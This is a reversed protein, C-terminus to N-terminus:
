GRKTSCNVANLQRINRDYFQLAVRKDTPTQRVGKPPHQVITKADVLLVVVADRVRLAATCTEQRQKGGSYSRYLIAGLVGAIMLGACVALIVVVRARRPAGLDNHKEEM